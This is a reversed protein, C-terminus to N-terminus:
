FVSKDEFILFTMTMRQSKNFPFPIREGGEGWVCICEDANELMKEESVMLSKRPLLPSLLPNLRDQGFSWSPKWAMIHYFGKFM